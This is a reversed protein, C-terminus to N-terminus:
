ATRVLALDRLSIELRRVAVAPSQTKTRILPGSYPGELASGFQITHNNDPTSLSLPISPTAPVMTISLAKDPLKLNTKMVLLGVYVYYKRSINLRILFTKSSLAFNVSIRNM